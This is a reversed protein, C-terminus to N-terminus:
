GHTGRAGHSRTTGATASAADHHSDNTLLLVGGSPIGRWGPPIVTTEGTGHIVVPGALVEDGLDDGYRVRTNTWGTSPFYVLRESERAAGDARAAGSATPTTRSGAVSGVVRVYAAEIAAPEYASNAGYIQRYKTVFATRLDRDLDGSGLDLPIDLNHAQLAFRVGISPRVAVDREGRHRGLTEVVGASLREVRSRLGKEGADGLPFRVLFPEEVTWTLDSQLMGLASFAGPRPMIHVTGIGIHEAIAPGFLPGAGGYVALAFERPDLGREMTVRHLLDAMQNEAIRVIAMAVQEPAPREGSVLTGLAARAADLDPLIGSALPTTPDLYGLMLYADTVTADAGGRGYCAPGPVAGSSQPGVRLVGRSDTWAISGGGAGISKILLKPLRLEFQDVVPQADHEATGRSVVGVDFTTGGVDVCLINRDAFAASMSAVGLVGAAPGSDLMGIPRAIVSAAAALGGDAQTYMIPTGLGVEALRRELEAVYRAVAPGVYANVVTSITREYEGLVGAVESSLSLYAGPVITAALERLRREHAPNVISWLLAIAISEVGSAALRALQERARAEDLGVVVAGAADVREIVGVIDAPRVLPRPKAHHTVHTIESEPLGAVRQRGRGIIIADEHGRTTMLATRAGRRTVMINTAITSGHVFTRCAGLLDGVSALGVAETAAAVSALVGLSPDDPTTPAKASWTEGSGSMVVCDTFTGGVDVGIKYEDARTM